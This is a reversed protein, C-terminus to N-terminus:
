HQVRDAIHQMDSKLDMIARHIDRRAKEAEADARTEIAKLHAKLAEDRKQLAAVQQQLDAKVADRAVDLRKNLDALSVDVAALDAKLDDREKTEGQTEGASADHPEAASAAPPPPPSAPPLSNGECGALLLPACLPVLKRTAQWPSPRTM